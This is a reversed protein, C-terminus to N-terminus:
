HERRRRAVAVGAVVALGLAMVAASAPEPVPASFNSITMTANGFSNDTTGIHFGILDGKAVQLSFDGSQSIAGGDQTLQFQGNHWYGAPDYMPDGSSDNTAYAWHFSFTGSGLAAITFDRRTADGSGTDSGILEIFAPAGSLDVTGNDDACGAPSCSQNWNGVAYGGSFDASATQFWGLLAAAVGAAIMSRKVQAGGLRERDDIRSAALLKRVLFLFGHWM